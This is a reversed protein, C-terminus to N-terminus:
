EKVQLFSVFPLFRAFCNAPWRHFEIFQWNQTKFSDAGNNWKISVYNFKVEQNSKNSVMTQKLELLRKSVFSGGLTLKENLCVKFCVIFLAILREETWNWWKIHSTSWTNDKLKLIFWSSLIERVLWASSGTLLTKSFAGIRIIVSM